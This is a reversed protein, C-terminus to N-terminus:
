NCTWSWQRIGATIPWGHGHPEIQTKGLDLCKNTFYIHDLNVLWAWATDGRAGFGTSGDWEAKRWFPYSAELSQASQAEQLYGDVKPNAYYGTNYFDVGGWSSQYLSYVELPSHSGWGFVVPQSHMVREIVEWTTGNPTAEIGLPQLMESFVIAIAQRTSDASPYNVPFSARIGNKGRIGDSGAMWGAKDLLAKAAELDYSVAADPNSWPLGDAPGFAPTGYGQLATDVIKRRDIGLNIAKRIAPDSTVNNGLANGKADKKGTDPVTAFTVGRNDVSDVRVTNFGEPLSDALAAPVTIMDVQGSKAAALSADEGTFLFTLHTFPSRPGYYNPNAEVILQEGRKWSVMRYPGSGVPNRAYDPGYGAAPVIGLSYFFETFTIWPKKLRIVVTRDDTAEASQMATMDLAGASEAAKAFTFAVDGATLPQGDSFRVDDRITITWTLRDDSLSWATALDPRTALGADRTLLTSQFLPHGYRGWGLLPDYGTDPEGGIALVLTDKGAAEVTGTMPLM